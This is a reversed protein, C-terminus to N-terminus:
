TNLDTSWDINIKKLKAGKFYQKFVRRFKPMYIDFGKDEMKSGLGTALYAQIEDMFVSETYGYSKLIRIFKNFDKEDMSQGLMVMKNHYGLDSFFLGHAIEHELLSPDESSKDDVGILYYNENGVKSKITDVVSFMILDYINMDPISRMCSEISDCPINYGAYDEHYSFYDKKTKKKYFDVYDDWKFGKGRFTDSDSEYFEQYRLFVHARLKDDAIVLAFIKPTVEFLKIENLLSQIDATEKTPPTDGLEVESLIKTILSVLDSESLRILKSM